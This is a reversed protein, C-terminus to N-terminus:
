GAWNTGPCHAAMIFLCNKAMDLAHFFCAQM